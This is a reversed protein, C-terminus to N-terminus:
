GLRYSQEKPFGALEASEDFDTPPEPIIGLRRYIPRVEDRLSPLRRAFLLGGALCATGGLLLTHQAGIREAGMGALLSGFPTTGMFSMTFFSMLRGRKDDDVITQLITNSSAILAMSGFGALALFLLSLLMIRSLAFAAIGLGFIGAAIAIVRGLGLVSPRSALSVTSALAGLGSAAMLFGYTHAGGHLVNGAFVPMLVAYPMGAFSILMMLLLISRIPAFGYAYRFGEHLEHLAHRKEGRPEKPALRMAAITMIVALFSVANLIFCWGEGISAILVGAVAPGILRAGTVMSSNLAIANGLHERDEVLEVVFSQRVPIDFANIIGLLVSLAIIQWVQATETLVICALVAAQLMALTQTCLLLRRRNWRDALVGAFPAILFTPFQSAFVVVGLLWTSGTLRYVLWSMAVMQMWTGIMSISQGTFFLRYNRHRLARLMLQLRAGARQAANGPKVVQKDTM